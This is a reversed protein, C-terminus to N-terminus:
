YKTNFRCLIWKKFDKMMYKGSRIGLDLIDTKKQSM